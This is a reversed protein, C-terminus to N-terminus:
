WMVPALQIILDRYTNLERANVELCSSYYDNPPFSLITSSAIVELIKDKIPNQKNKSILLVKIRRGLSSCYSKIKSETNDFQPGLQLVSSSNSLGEKGQKKVRQKELTAVFMEKHRAKNEPQIYCAIHSHSAKSPPHFLIRYQLLWNRLSRLEPLDVLLGSEKVLHIYQNVQQKFETAVTLCPSPNQTNQFSDKM